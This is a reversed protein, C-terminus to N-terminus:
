RSEQKYPAAPHNQAPRARGAASSKATQTSTSDSVAIAIDTNDISGNQNFYYIAGGVLFLAVIGAIWKWRNDKRTVDTTTVEVKDTSTVKHKLTVKRKLEVM